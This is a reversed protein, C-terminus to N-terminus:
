AKLGSPGVHLLGRNGHFGNSSVEGPDLECGQLLFGWEQSSLEM